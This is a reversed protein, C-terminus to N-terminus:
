SELGEKQGGENNIAANKQEVILETHASAEYKDVDDYSSNDNASKKLVGITQLLRRLGKLILM